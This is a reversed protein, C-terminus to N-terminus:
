LWYSVTVGFVFLLVGCFTVDIGEPLELGVLYIFHRGCLLDNYSSGCSQTVVSRKAKFCFPKVLDRLVFSTLLDKSM